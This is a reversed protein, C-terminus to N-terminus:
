ELDFCDGGDWINVIGYFWNWVGGNVIAGYVGIMELVRVESQGLVLGLEKVLFFNVGFDKVLVIIEDLGVM